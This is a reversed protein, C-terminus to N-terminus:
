FPIVSCREQKPLHLTAWDDRSLGETMSGMEAEQLLAASVGSSCASSLVLVWFQAAWIRHAGRAQLLWQMRAESMLVKANATQLKEKWLAHAKM